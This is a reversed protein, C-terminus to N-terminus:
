NNNKIHGHCPDCRTVWNFVLIILSFVIKNASNVQPPLTANLALEESVQDTVDEVGPEDAVRTNFDSNDMEENPPVESSCQLDEGVTEMDDGAGADHKPDNDSMKIHRDSSPILDSVNLM